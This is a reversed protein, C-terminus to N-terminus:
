NIVCPSPCNKCWGRTIYINVQQAVDDFLKEATIYNTPLDNYFNGDYVFGNITAGYHQYSDTNVTVNLTLNPTEGDSLRYKYPSLRNLEDMIYQFGLRQAGQLDKM